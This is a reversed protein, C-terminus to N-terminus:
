LNLGLVDLMDYPDMCVAGFLDCVNPIKLKRAQSWNEIRKEFTVVTSHDVKAQAILWLDAGALFKRLEREPFRGIDFLSRAMARYEEQVDRTPLIFSSKYGRIWRSLHDKCRTIEHYALWTSYISGSDFQSGLWQWFSPSRSIRYPGQHWQILVDADICYKRM